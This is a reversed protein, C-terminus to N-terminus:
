EVRAGVVLIDDMQHEDLMWDALTKELINKQYTMPEKHIEFLLQKFRRRMFKRSNEGGFQDQFGDSYLYFTIPGSSFDVTKKTFIREADYADRYGGVGYLNAKLEFLEKNQIYILSNKAGAYELKKDKLDIVCLAMDMGDRNHSEEQRLSKRIGNHLENLIQDAEIIGQDIIIQSLLQNGIMSMFAGPVGHGTCDVAAIIIKENIYGKIQQGEGGNESFVPRPETKYFWYFDGSVVDRPRFYVFHLPLVEDIVQDYTLMAEQIRKAYRISSEINESKKAIDNRQIEIQNRQAEIADRQALIEEKQQNIEANQLTLLENARKEKRNSRYLVFALVFLLLLMGAMGVIFYGRIQSDKIKLEKEKREKELQYSEQLAEIKKLQDENLLDEKALTYSELYEFAKEYNKKVRYIESLTYTAEKSENSLGISDAIELSQRAYTLATDVLENKLYTQAINNLTTALGSQNNIRRDIRLSRIFYDLAGSNNNQTFYVLGINRLCVAIGLEDKIEQRIKLSKNYYELAEYFKDQRFYLDGINNLTGAEGKRDKSKKDLTLVRDYYTRAKGYEGMLQYVVGVDNLAEAIGKEYNLSEYIQLADLFYELAQSNNFQLQYIIGINKLTTAEGFTYSLRKSLDLAERAHKMAEKPNADKISECLDNLLDVKDKGKATKLRSELKVAVSTQAFCPFALLYILGAYIVIRNM